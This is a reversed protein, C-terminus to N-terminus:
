RVINFRFQDFKLIHLAKNEICIVNNLRDDVMASTNIIKELKIKTALGEFSLADDRHHFTKGYQSLMQVLYQIADYGEYADRLPFTQYTHFFSKRFASVKDLSYDAFSSSSIVVKLQSFLSTFDVGYDQWSPMGVVTISRNNRMLNLHRLFNFVVNPDDFETVIYVNKTSDLYKYEDGFKFDDKVVIQAFMTSDQGNLEQLATQFYNMLPKFRERGVMCVENPSFGDLIYKTLVECHTPLSSKLLIYNPNVFEITRFSNWPAVMPVNNKISLKAAENLHDRRYPGIILDAQQIAPSNLVPLIADAAAGVDVVRIELPTNKNGMDQIGMKLGAYYHFFKESGEGSLEKNINEESLPLLLVVKYATKKDGSPDTLEPDKGTIKILPDKGSDTWRVTDVRTNNTDAKEYRGTKPNYVEKADVVPTQPKVPTSTTKKAPSCAFMLLGIAMGVLKALKSGNLPLRHNPVSIM